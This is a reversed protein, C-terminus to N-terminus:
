LGKKFLGFVHSVSSSLDSNYPPHNLPTTQPACLWMIVQLRGHEIAAERDSKMEVVKM